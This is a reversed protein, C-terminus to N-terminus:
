KDKQKVPKKLISNVNKWDVKIITSDKKALFLYESTEYVKSGTITDQAVVYSIKMLKGGGVTQPLNSYVNNTYDLTIKLLLFILALIDFLQKLQRGLKSRGFNFYTDDSWVTKEEGKTLRDEHLKASRYGVIFFNIGLCILIELSLISQFVSDRIFTLFLLLISIISLFIYINRMRRSTSTESLGKKQRDEQHALTTSIIALAMSLTLFSFIKVDGSYSLYYLKYEPNSFSSPECIFFVILSIFPIKILGQILLKFVSFQHNEINGARFSFIIINIGLFLLFALGVIIAHPKLLDYDQIQFSSLHYTIICSGFVFTAISIITIKGTIGNLFENM